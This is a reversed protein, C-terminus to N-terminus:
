SQQKITICLPLLSRHSKLLYQPNYSVNDHCGNMDKSQLCVTTICSPSEQLIAARHLLAILHGSDAVPAGAWIAHVCANWAGGGRSAFSGRLVIFSSLQQSRWEAELPLSSYGPVLPFPPFFSFNASVSKAERTEKMQISCQKQKEQLLRGDKFLKKSLGRWSSQRNAKVTTIHESKAVWWLLWKSGGGGEGGNTGEPLRIKPEQNGALGSFPTAERSPCTQIEFQHWCPGSALHSWVLVVLAGALHGAQKGFSTLTHTSRPHHWWM